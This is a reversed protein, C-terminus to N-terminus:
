CERDGAARASASKECCGAVEFKKALYLRSSLDM